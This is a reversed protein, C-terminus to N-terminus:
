VFVSEQQRTVPAGVLATQAMDQAALFSVTIEEAEMSDVTVPIIRLVNDPEQAFVTVPPDLSVLMASVSSTRSLAMSVATSVPLVLTGLGASAYLSTEKSWVHAVTTAARHAPLSMAALAAGGVTVHASVLPRTVPVMALATREGAPAVMERVSTVVGEKMDATVNEWPSMASAGNQVHRM